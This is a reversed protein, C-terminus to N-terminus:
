QPIVSFQDYDSNDIIRQAEDMNERAKQSFGVHDKMQYAIACAVLLDFHRTTLRPDVEGDMLDNRTYSRAEAILAPCNLQLYGNDIAKVLDFVMKPKTMGNTHWGYERPIDPQGPLKVKTQKPQTKYIKDLPYIQKLRGITAHGQNNREPAMLCQGYREGQRAVEDGYVDPKISNNAYTAVVQYPIMDFDIIVSTSSDLGVGDSVDQGGAYRHSPDYRKYIKLGGIEQIPILKPMADVMDRDFVIDQSASPECMREGAFDDDDIKMQEIEAVTYRDWMPLGTAKDIIPVILVKKKDGPKTVLVHVNGRESIYNCTYIGSGGKALGTRAEEMNDWIAKTKVASRLTMRNEFDEFWILDPRAEEQIAGRQDTGVTDAVLKVGTATTFSSMTEERKTNTKQFIEPYLTAFEPKILMNYIDTVIQRSNTGDESLVKIYKRRHFLDNAICFALLLKTRVTKAGGRFAIDIFTVLDGKYCRLNYLDIERHFPADESSFYKPFYRRAWLQFKGIVLEDSENEFSFLAKLKVPDNSQLIKEIEEM